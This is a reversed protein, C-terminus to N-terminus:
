ASTAFPDAIDEVLTLAISLYFHATSSIDDDGPRVVPSGIEIDTVCPLVDGLGLVDGEQARAAALISVVEAALLHAPDTPNEPDDPSFGQIILVWQGASAQNGAPGTEPKAADPDELVSLLPLPDTPGFRNRGRFVRPRMTGGEDEYDSLDHQYVEGDPRTNAPDITKLEACLAKLVRLRFPDTPM